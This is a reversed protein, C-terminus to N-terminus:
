LRELWKKNKRAISFGVQEMFKLVDTKRVIQLVYCDQLTETRINRIITKRGKRVNVWISCTIGYNVWLLVSIYNLLEKNSNYARVRFIKGETYIGGESDFFGRLFESPYKQILQKHKELPQKLYLCLQKCPVYSRFYGDVIREFPRNQVIKLKETFNDRFDKDKTSLEFKWREYVHDNQNVLYKYVSGDGFYVGTLYALEPSEIIEKQLLKGTM